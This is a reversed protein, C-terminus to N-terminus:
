SRDPLHFFHGDGRFDVNIGLYLTSKNNMMKINMLLTRLSKTNPTTVDDLSQIDWSQAHIISGLFWDQKNCLKLIQAKTKSNTNPTLYLVYRM